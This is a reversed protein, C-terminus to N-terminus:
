LNKCEKLQDNMIFDFHTDHMYVVHWFLLLRIWHLLMVILIARDVQHFRSDM